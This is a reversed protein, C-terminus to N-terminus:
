SFDAVRIDQHIHNRAAHALEIRTTSADITGENVASAEASRVNGQLFDDFAFNPPFHGLRNRGRFGRHSFALPMLSEFSM